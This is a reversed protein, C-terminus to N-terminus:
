KYKGRLEWNVTFCPPPVCPSCRYIRNSFLIIWCGVESWKVGGLLITKKRMRDCEAVVLSEKKKM